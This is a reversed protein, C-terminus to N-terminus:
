ALVVVTGKATGDQIGSAVIFQYTLSQTHVFVFVFFHIKNGPKDPPCHLCKCTPSLNERKEKMEQLRKEMASHHGSFIKVTPSYVLSGNSEFLLVPVDDGSFLCIGAKLEFFAKRRWCHNRRLVPRGRGGSNEKKKRVNLSAYSSPKMFHPILPGKLWSIIPEIVPFVATCKRSDM